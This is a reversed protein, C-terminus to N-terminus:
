DGYLGSATNVNRCQIWLAERRRDVSFLGCSGDSVPQIQPVVFRGPISPAAGEKLVLTTAFGAEYKDKNVFCDETFHRSCVYVPTNAKQRGAFVFEEWKQRIKPDAPLCFMPSNGECGLFCMVPAMAALQGSCEPLNPQPPRPQSRRRRRRRKRTGEEEEEEVSTVPGYKVLAAQDFRSPGITSNFICNLNM